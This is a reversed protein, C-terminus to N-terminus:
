TTATDDNAIVENVGNTPDELVEITVTTSDCAQPTGNDCVTYNFVDTGTFGAAPTYTYEGTALDMIVTGGKSSTGDFASVTQLHGEADEDNTLVNGKVSIDVYTNNIDPIADTTNVPNVTLVVTAQDCAM